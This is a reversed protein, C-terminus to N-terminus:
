GRYYEHYLYNRVKRSDQLVERSRSMLKKEAALLADEPLDQAAPFLDALATAPSKPTSFRSRNRMLGILKMADILYPLLM